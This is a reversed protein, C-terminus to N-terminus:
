YYIITHIETYFLYVVISFVIFSSLSYTIYQSQNRMKLFIDVDAPDANPFHSEKLLISNDSESLFALLKDFERILQRNQLYYLINKFLGQKEMAKFKDFFTQRAYSLENIYTFAGPLMLAICSLCMFVDLNYAKKLSNRLEEIFSDIKNELEAFNNKKDPTVLSNFLVLGNKVDASWAAHSLVFFLRDGKRFDEQRTVLNLELSDLFLELNEKRLYDTKVLPAIYLLEKLEKQTSTQGSTETKMIISVRNKVMKNVLDKLMTDQETNNQTGL